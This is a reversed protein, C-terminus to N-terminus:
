NLSLTAARTAHRVFFNVTACATQAGDVDFDWDISRPDIFGVLGGLSPDEMLREVASDLLADVAQDVPASQTGRAYCELALGTAWLAPTGRGAAGEREARLPRVVIATVMQEPVVRARARFVNPSIAPARQLAAQMAAAAQAFATM